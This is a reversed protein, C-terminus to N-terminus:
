NEIVLEAEISINLNAFLGEGVALDFLEAEHHLGSKAVSEVKIVQGRCSDESVLLVLFQWRVIEMSDWNTNVFSRAFDFDVIVPIENHNNVVRQFAVM